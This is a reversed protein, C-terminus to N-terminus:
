KRCGFLNPHKDIGLRILSVVLLQDVLSVAVVCYLLL